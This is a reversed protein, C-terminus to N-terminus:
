RQFLHRKVTRLRLTFGLIYGWLCLVVHLCNFGGGLFAARVHLSVVAGGSL